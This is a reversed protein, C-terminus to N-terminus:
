VQKLKFSISGTRGTTSFSISGDIKADIFYSEQPPKWTIPKAGKAMLRVFEKMTHYDAITMNEFRIDWTEKVNNLGDPATQTAGDGGEFTLTKVDFAGGSSRAIGSKIVPFYNPM